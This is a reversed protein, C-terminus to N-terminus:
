YIADIDYLLTSCSKIDSFGSYYIILLDNLSHKKDNKHYVM